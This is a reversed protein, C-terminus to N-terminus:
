SISLLILDPSISACSASSSKMASIYIPSLINIFLCSLASIISTRTVKNQPTEYRSISVASSSESGKVRLKMLNKPANTMAAAAKKGLILFTLLIVSIYLARIPSISTNTYIPAVKPTIYVLREFAPNKHARVQTNVGARPRIKLFCIASLFNIKTITIQKAPIASRESSSFRLGAGPSIIHRSHATEYAASRSTVSVATDFSSTM